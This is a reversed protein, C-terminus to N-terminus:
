INQTLIYPLQPLQQHLKLVNGVDIIKNLKQIIILGGYSWITNIVKAIDFIIM